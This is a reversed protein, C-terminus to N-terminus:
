EIQKSLINEIPPTLSYLSYSHHSLLLSPPVCVGFCVNDCRPPSHVYFLAVALLIM